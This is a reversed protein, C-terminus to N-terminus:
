KTELCCPFLPSPPPAPQNPIGTVSKQVCMKATQFLKTFSGKEEIYNRKGKEGGRLYVCM